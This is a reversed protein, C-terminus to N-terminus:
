HLVGRKTYNNSTFCAESQTMTVLSACRAPTLKVLPSPRMITHSLQSTGFSKIQLFCFYIFFCPLWPCLLFPKMFFVNTSVKQPVTEEILIYRNKRKLLNYRSMALLLIRTGCLYGGPSKFRHGKHRSAFLNTWQVLSVHHSYHSIAPEWGSKSYTNAKDDRIRDSHSVKFIAWPICTTWFFFFICTHPGIKPEM